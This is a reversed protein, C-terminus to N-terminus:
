FCWVQSSGHVSLSFAICVHVHVGVTMKKQSPLVHHHGFIFDFHFFVTFVFIFYLLSIFYLLPKIDFVVVILCLTDLAGASYTDISKIRSIEPRTPYLMLFSHVVYPFPTCSVGVLELDHLTEQYPLGHVFVFRYFIGEFLCEFFKEIQYTNHIPPLLSWCSWKRLTWNKINNHFRFKKRGIFLHITFIPLVDVAPHQVQRRRPFSVPVSTSVHSFEYRM